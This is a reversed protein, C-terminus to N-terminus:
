DKKRYEMPTMGYTEKFQRSFYPLYRYGVQNAVEYIKLTPDKLLEGAREMRMQILMESFTKGVEDKFLTGLYNPSFSFQHAIDKLTINEHLQERVVKLIERILPSNKTNSKQNLKESIEFIKRVLWSRIDQVTEFQHLIDLNQLELGILEFLNEEISQLYQDLKMVITVALNYITFKSQLTLVSQFLNDIEDHIRVLEYSSMASFLAELRQDLTRADEMEPARRVEDYAIVSGKGWFMKSDVAELAQKYSLHLYDLSQVATGMGITMSFPYTQQLRKYMQDLCDKCCADKILLALRHRSLKVGHETGHQRALTIMENFFQGMSEPFSQGESQHLKMAIDDLEMIVVRIPWSLDSLGYSSALKVIDQDRGMNFEGEFLRLMLENKAMPILQKYNEEEEKRRHLIDLEAKVKKLSEILEEDEMPKLVYSCANMSLAQKVYSFEQYGSVFIIRMDQKKELARRALELGSMNPMHVDTVLIDVDEKELVECGAFGNGVAGVIEMGLQNWPIFQKMGELDLNEDDALLVKYM